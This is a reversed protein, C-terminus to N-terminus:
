LGFIKKFRINSKYIIIGCITTGVAAFLFMPTESIHIKLIKNIMEVCWIFLVHSYYMFASVSSAMRGLGHVRERVPNNICLILVCLTLPYLGFTTIINDSLKMYNIAIVECIFVFASISAWMIVKGNSCVEEKNELIKNILYGMYFFPYGICFISRLKSFIDNRFVAGLVPISVAVQHYSIGICGVAYLVIGIIFGVRVKKIRKLFVVICM